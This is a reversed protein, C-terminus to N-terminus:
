KNKRKFFIKEKNIKQGKQVKLLEEFFEETNYIDYENLLKKIDREKDKKSKSKCTNVEKLTVTRNQFKFGTEGRSKLFNVINAEIVKLRQRLSRNTANNRSIEAKIKDFERIQQIISM